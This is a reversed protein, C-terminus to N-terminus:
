HDAGPLWAVIPPVVANALGSFPQTSIPPSESVSSPLARAPSPLTHPQHPVLISRAYSEMAEAQAREHECETCADVESEHPCIDVFPRPPRVTAASAGAGIGPEALLRHYAAETTAQSVNWRERQLESRWARARGCRGCSCVHM